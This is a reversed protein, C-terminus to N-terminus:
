LPPAYQSQNWEETPSSPMGANADILPLVGRVGVQKELNVGRQQVYGRQMGSLQKLSAEPVRFTIPIGANDEVTVDYRVVGHIPTPTPNGKADRGEAHAVFWNANLFSQIGVAVEDPTTNRSHMVANDYINALTKISNSTFGQQVMANMATEPTLDKTNVLAPIFAKAVDIIPDHEKHFSNMEEPTLPASGASNANYDTNHEQLQAKIIEMSQEHEYRRTDAQTAATQRAAERQNELMQQQRM